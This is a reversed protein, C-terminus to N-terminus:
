MVGGAEALIHSTAELASGCTPCRTRASHGSKRALRLPTWGGEMRGGKDRANIDAGAALLLRVAENRGRWAARHLPTRLDRNRANVKAGHEILLTMCDLHGEGAALHLPTQGAGNKVNPDHGNDLLARLTAANGSQAADHLPTNM